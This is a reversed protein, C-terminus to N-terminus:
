VNLKGNGEVHKLGSKSPEIINVKIENTEKKKTNGKPLLHLLRNSAGTSKM